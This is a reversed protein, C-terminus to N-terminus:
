LFFIAVAGHEIRVGLCLSDFIMSFLFAHRHFHLLGRGMVLLIWEPHWRIIVSNIAEYSKGMLASGSWSPLPQWWPVGAVVLRGCAGM